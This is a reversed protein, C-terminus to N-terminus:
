KLSYIKLGSLDGALDRKFLLSLLPITIIGTLLILTTRFFVKTIYSTQLRQLPQGLRLECTWEGMTAGNFVRMFILYTWVSLVFSILFAKLLLHQTMLGIIIKQSSTKMLFSFAMVFFCSMSILILFDVTAALWTWLALQAGTRKKSGGHFGVQDESFDLRRFLKSNVKEKVVPISPETPERLPPQQQPVQSINSLDIKM